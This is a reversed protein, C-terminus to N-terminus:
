LELKLGVHLIREKPMALVPLGTEREIEAIVEAPAVSKRRLVFGHQPRPRPRLQPRSRRARSRTPWRTPDGSRRHGGADGGASRGADFLPGFRSLRGDACLAGVRAILEDEALGLREAAERFPRACVPFGGQLANVITRDTDDLNDDPANM